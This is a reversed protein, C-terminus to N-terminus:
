VGFGGVTLDAAISTVCLKYQLPWGIRKERRYRSSVMIPRVSINWKGKKTWLVVTYGQAYSGITMSHDNQILRKCEGSSFNVM